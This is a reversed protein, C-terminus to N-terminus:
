SATSAKTGLLSHVPSYLMPKPASSPSPLSSLSSSFPPPSWCCCSSSGVKESILPPYLSAPPPAPAPAAAMPTLTMSWVALKCSELPSNGLVKRRKRAEGIASGDVMM